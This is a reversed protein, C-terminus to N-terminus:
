SERAKSKGKEEVDNEVTCKVQRRTKGYGVQATQVLYEALEDKQKNFYPHPGPNTGHVVRGTLRNKLTLKPVKHEKTAQYTGCSNEVVEIAALIQQDTWQKRKSPRNTVTPSAEKSKSHKQWQKCHPM